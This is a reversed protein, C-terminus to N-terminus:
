SEPESNIEIDLTEEDIELYLVNPQCCVQCDEVYSQQMGASLDVFTLNSEGCYACTYEATNQM